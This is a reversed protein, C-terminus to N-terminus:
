GHRGLVARTAALARRAREAAPLHADRASPAEVSIAVDPPLADLLAELPLEGEGPLLRATRSERRLEEPPLARAPARADCFHVLPMLRPPVAALDSPAGGSRSLHLADICLAANPRAAAAVLALADELRPMASYPNFEALVTLAFPLAADCLAAFIASRRARDRDEVPCVIFRAGIRASFALVPILKEVDLAPTIQFVGIELVGLGTEALLRLIEREREADGVVVPDSPVLPNLRLGVAEFGAEAAARIEGAPGADLITLAALSIIKM